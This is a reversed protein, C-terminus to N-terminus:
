TMLEVSPVILLIVRSGDAVTIEKFLQTSTYLTKDQINGLYAVPLDDEYGTVSKIRTVLTTYYSEAQTLAFDM